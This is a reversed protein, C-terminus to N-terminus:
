TFDLFWRASFMCQKWSIHEVILCCTLLSQKCWVIAYDVWQCPFPRRSNQLYSYLFFVSDRSSFACFHKDARQFVYRIFCSLLITHISASRLNYITVLEFNVVAVTVHGATNPFSSGFKWDSYVWTSRVFCTHHMTYPYLCVKTM